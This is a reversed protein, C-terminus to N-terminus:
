EMPLAAAKEADVKRLFPAVCLSALFIFTITQFLNNFTMVEAERLTLATLQKLAAINPEAIAANSM